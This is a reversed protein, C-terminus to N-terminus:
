YRYTGYALTLPRVYVTEM